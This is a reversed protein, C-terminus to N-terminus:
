KNTKKKKKELRKQYFELESGELIYGDARGVQGPRSSICALLRSQGSQFQGTLNKDRKELGKNLAELAKVRKAWKRKRTKSIGKKAAKDTGEKKKSGEKKTKKGKIKHEAPKGLSIGYHKYYWNRFPTADVVVVCNKVLTKTRVLENNSANYVVDLIRSKRAIGESGWAFNGSDLRLARWKVNGGRVRIRRVRRQGPVLKTMAPARGCRNLLAFVTAPMESVSRMSPHELHKGYYDFFQARIELWDKRTEGSINQV